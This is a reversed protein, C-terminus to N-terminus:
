ATTLPEVVRRVERLRHLLARCTDADLLARAERATKPARRPPPPSEHLDAPPRAASSENGARAAGMLDGAEGLLSSTVPSAGSVARPARASGMELARCLANTAAQAEPLAALLAQGHARCKERYDDLLATFRKTEGRHLWVIATLDALQEPSFDYIKRTVKRFLHGRM